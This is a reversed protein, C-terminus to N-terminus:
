DRRKMAQEFGCTCKLSVKITWLRECGVRHDGYIDLADRLQKIKEVLWDKQEKSMVVIRPLLSKEIQIFGQAKIEDMRDM